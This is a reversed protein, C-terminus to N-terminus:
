CHVCTLLEGSLLKLSTMVCVFCCEIVTCGEVWTAVVGM